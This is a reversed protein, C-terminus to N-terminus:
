RRRDTDTLRHTLTHIDTNRDACFSSMLFQDVKTRIHMTTFGISHNTKPSMQDQGKVKLAININRGSLRTYSSDVRWAAFAFKLWKM